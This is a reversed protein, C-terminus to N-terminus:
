RESTIRTFFPLHIFIWQQQQYGHHIEIKFNLNKLKTRLGAHTRGEMLIELSTIQRLKKNTQKEWQKAIKLAEGVDLNGSESAYNAFDLANWRSGTNNIEITHSDDKWTKSVIFPVSYGLNRLAWFRHQGDVIQKKSNVIIPIQVGNEKISQELKKIIKQNPLRNTDLFEFLQYDKTIGVKFNKEIDM